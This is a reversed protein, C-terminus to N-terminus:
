KTRVLDTKKDYMLGAPDLAEPFDRGLAREVNILLIEDSGAALDPTPAKGNQVFFFLCLMLVLFSPVWLLAPRSHIKSAPHNLRAMITNHQRRWFFDPREAAQHVSDGFIRLAERLDGLNQEPDADARIDSAGPIKENQRGRM